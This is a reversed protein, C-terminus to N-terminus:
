ILVHLKMVNGIIVCKFHITGHFVDDNKYWAMWFQSCCM